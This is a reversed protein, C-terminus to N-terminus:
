AHVKEKYHPDFGVKTFLLPRLGHGSLHGIGLAPALRQVEDRTLLRRSVRHPTYSTGGRGQSRVGYEVTGDGLVQRSIREATTDNDPAHFLKCHTNGWLASDVGYTEELQPLDQILFWGKIGYGAMTAVEADVTPVYGYTPWEDGCLLLRHQYDEPRGQAEREMLRTLAVDIIVRYVPYLRKVAAPSPALLYLSRPEPGHQLTRLDLTSTETSAAVYPSNYLILPRIATSWISGLERDGSITAVANVITTIAMHVGHPTHRTKGMLELTALLTRGKTTARRQTLFRWVAPLSCRGATYGVHLLVAALLMAALERFHLSVESEHAMKRPATLSQGITLADDFERPDGWRITDGVNLRCQPRGYPAFVDVRGYQRRAAGTAWYNEGNKPDTILASGTRWTRRLTPTLHFAGKGSRTPGVLLVHTPGDECYLTGGIVGVVVGHQTSLGGRAVERPTAWRASGHSTPHRDQRRGCVQGVLLVAMGGGVLWLVLTAHQQGWQGLMVIIDALMM